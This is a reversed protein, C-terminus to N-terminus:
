KNRMRLVFFLIVVIVLVVMLVGVGVGAEFIGEVVSCSGFCLGTSILIALQLLNNKRM